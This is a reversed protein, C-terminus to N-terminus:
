VKEADTTVAGVESVKWGRPGLPLSPRLRLPKRNLRSARLRLSNAKEAKAQKALVGTRLFFGFHDTPFPWKTGISPTIGAIKVAVAQDVM